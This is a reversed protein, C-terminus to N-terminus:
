TMLIDELEKNKNAIEEDINTFMKEYQEENMKIIPLLKNILIEM